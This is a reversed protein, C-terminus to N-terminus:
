TTRQNREATKNRGEYIASTNKKNSTYELKENQPTSIYINNKIEFEVQGNGTYPFPVPKQM